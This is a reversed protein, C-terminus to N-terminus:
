RLGLSPLHSALFARQAEHMEEPLSSFWRVDDRTVALPADPASPRVAFAVGVPWGLGLELHSPYEIYGLLHDAVVDLGLEDRAVRAVADTLREGLRVTGGPVHWLGECPGSRRRALLVGDASAVVVEVTLRPVKSFVAEFEQESLPPPVARTPRELDTTEDSLEHGEEIVALARRVIERDDALALEDSIWGGALEGRIIRPSGDPRLLTRELLGARALVVFPEPDWGRDAVVLRIEDLSLSSQAWLSLWSAVEDPRRGGALYAMHDADETLVDLVDILRGHWGREAAIRRAAGAPVAGEEGALLALAEAVEALTPEDPKEESVSTQM